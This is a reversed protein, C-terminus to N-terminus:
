VAEHAQEDDHHDGHDEALLGGHGVVADAHLGPADHEPHDDGVRDAGRLPHLGRELNFVEDLRAEHEEARFDQEVLDDGDAGGTDEHRPHDGGDHEDRGEDEALLHQLHRGLRQVDDDRGIHGHAAGRGGDGGGGFGVLRPAEDGDGLAHGIDMFDPFAHDAIQFLESLADREILRFMNGFGAAFDLADDFDDFHGAGDGRQNLALGEILDGPADGALDRFLGEAHEAAHRGEVEGRQHEAPEDGEGDARAVGEDILRGGLRGVEHLEHAFDEHFDAQGAADDVDDVAAAVDGARPIFIGADGPTHETPDVGVALFIASPQALPALREM